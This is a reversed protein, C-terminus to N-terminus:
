QITQVPRTLRVSEIAFRNLKEDETQAQASGQTLTAIAFM